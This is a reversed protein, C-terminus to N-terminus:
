IFKFFSEAIVTSACSGYHRGDRAVHWYPENYININKKNFKIVDIENIKKLFINENNSEVPVGEGRKFKRPDILVFKDIDTEMAFFNNFEADIYIQKESYEWTTWVLKIKYASCLEELLSILIFNILLKNEHIYKKSYYEKEKDFFANPLYLDFTKQKEDFSMVRSSEPLLLFIYNPVKGSKIFATVNKVILEISSGNVSVNYFDVNKGSHLTEVKEVLKKYWTNKEPLGVALTQSCGGFLINISNKNFENFDKGRFGQSNIQYEFCDGETVDLENEFLYKTYVYGNKKVRDSKTKHSLNTSFFNKPILDKNINLVVVKRFIEVLQIAFNTGM